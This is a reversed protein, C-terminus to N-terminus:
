LATRHKPTYQSVSKGPCISGCRHFYLWKYSLSLLFTLSGNM